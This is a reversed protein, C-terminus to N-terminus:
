WSHCSCLMRKRRKWRRRRQSLCECVWRLKGAYASKILGKFSSALAGEIVIEFLLHPGAGLDDAFM